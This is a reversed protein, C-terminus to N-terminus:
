GAHHQSWGIGDFIPQQNGAAVDLFSSSLDVVKTKGEATMADHDLDVVLLTEFAYTTTTRGIKTPPVRASQRQATPPPGSQGFAVWM